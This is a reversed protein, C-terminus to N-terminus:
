AANEAAWAELVAREREATFPFPRARSDDAPRAKEFALTDRATLGIPRFTLGTALSAAIDVYMMPYGPVWAPMDSWPQVNHATLFDEPVWTLEASAGVGDRVQTLMSEMTLYDAPGAGNFVGMQGQEALRIHWETLDRQDIIQTSHGPNGPALVSGGRDMRVPWYSWRGSNDGPGVILTPRVITCRGPFADQVTRESLVKMLAYDAEDGDSFDEPVPVTPADQPLPETVPRSADVGDPPPMAYVSLSSVFLYQDTADKLLATSKQAWRYDYCNNDLVVDWSRGELATHDNNRDGVLREVSAPLDSERQGRTFISVQHGREVAYRVTNPGIFGTGGLILIRKPRSSALLPSTGALGVGALALASSRILDRRNLPM